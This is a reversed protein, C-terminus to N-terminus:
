KLNDNLKDRNQFGFMKRAFIEYFDQNLLAIWALSVTKDLFNLPCEFSFFVNLILTFVNLNHISKYSM